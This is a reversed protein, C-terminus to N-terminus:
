PRQKGDSAVQGDDTDDESSVQDPPADHAHHIKAVASGQGWVPHLSADNADAAQNHPNAWRQSDRQCADEDLASTYNWRYEDNSTTTNGQRDRRGQVRM